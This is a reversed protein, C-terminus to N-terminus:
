KWVLGEAVIQAELRNVVANATAIPNDSENITMNVVISNPLNALNQAVTGGNLSSNVDFSTPISSQMQKAVSNMEGTFGEEIGLAMNKGIQDRFVTSPSHIGLMGKIGGLMRSGLNKVANVASSIMSTVGNIIGRIMDKGLGLMKSPLQKLGDWIKAFVQGVGKGVEGLMSLLGKVLTGIINAGTKLIQPLANLLTTLITMTIRPLASMLQPLANLLGNVLSLIVDVGVEIIQPLMEVLSLIIIPLLDSIADTIQPLVAIIAQIGTEIASVIVPLNNAIMPVVSTILMPVIKQLALSIFDGMKSLIVEIRPQLNAWLNDVAVFLTDFIAGLDQNEDALAVLVNQWASQFSAMSGQITKTAEEATTGTIGLETQIVHIANYVDDLQSIDYKVGTIKQADKLLREMETKTGGYGLKLNDLMTYNQKAFGQYASQISEMSTGMKNANDAMDTIAQDAVKTAEGYDSTSQLLSASFATVTQMYDNASLGATQYARNANAIVDDAYDKFLTEVGGVLQEYDGYSSVAQKGVDILTAGLQKVGNLAGKIASTGLDALMQRWVTWGGKASKEAEEGSKKTEEALESTDDTTGDLKTQVEALQNQYNVLYNKTAEINRALAMQEESLKGTSDTPLQKLMEEQLQLSKSTEQIIQKLYDQKQALLTVNTPNFKLLRDVDKLSKQTAYISTNAEKFATVLPNTDAGIEITIGRIKTSAM